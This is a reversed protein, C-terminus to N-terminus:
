YGQYERYFENPDYLTGAETHLPIEGYKMQKIHGDIFGVNTQANHRFSFAGRKNLSSAGASRSDPGPAIKYIGDYGIDGSLMRGSANRVRKLNSVFDLKYKYRMGAAELSNHTVYWTSYGYSFNPNIFTQQQHIRAGSPCISVPPAINQKPMWIGYERSAGIYSALGGENLHPTVDAFRNFIYNTVALSTLSASFHGKNDEAYQLAAFTVTKLNNQCSNTKARERAQQLAPLLMAALIAIIAIVVLLEILTFYKKTDM